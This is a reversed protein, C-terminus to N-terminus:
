DKHAQRWKWPELAKDDQWLGLRKNRAEQENLLMTPSSAKGKYRYAWAFGTKVMDSNLFYTKCEPQCKKVYVDALTRGYRDTGRSRIAVDSAGKVLESLTQRARQGYPQKKEPADIGFLRVRVTETEETVEITDGDLIRTVSAASVLFPAYLGLLVITLVAKTVM